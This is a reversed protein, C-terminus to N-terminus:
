SDHSLRSNLKETKLYKLSFKDVFHLRLIKHEFFTDVISFAYGVTWCVSFIGDKVCSGLEVKLPFELFESSSRNCNLALM